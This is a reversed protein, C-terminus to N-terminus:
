FFNNSGDKKLSSIMDSKQEESWFDVNLRYEVIMDMDMSGVQLSVTEAVDCM